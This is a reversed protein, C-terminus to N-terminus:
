NLINKSLVIIDTGRVTDIIKASGTDGLINIIDTIPSRGHHAGSRILVYANSGPKLSFLM